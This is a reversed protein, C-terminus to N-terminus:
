TSGGKPKPSVTGTPQGVAASAKIPDQVLVANVLSHRDCKQGSSQM